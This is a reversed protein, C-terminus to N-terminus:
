QTKTPKLRFLHCSWYHDLAQGVAEENMPRKVWEPQGSKEGKENKNYYKYSSNLSLITVEYM